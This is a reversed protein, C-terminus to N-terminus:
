ISCSTLMRELVSRTAPSCPPLPQRRPRFEPEAEAVTTENATEHEAPDDMQAAVLESRLVRIGDPAEIGLRVTSGKVRLITVTINEGIQIQQRQKRTLVLM